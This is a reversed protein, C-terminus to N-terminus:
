LAQIGGGYFHPNTVNIIQPATQLFAIERIHGYYSEILSKEEHDPVPINKRDSTKLIGDSPGRNDPSEHPFLKFEFLQVFNYSDYKGFYDSEEPIVVKIFQVEPATDPLDVTQKWAKMNGIPTLEHQGDEANLNVALPTWKQKLKSGYIKYHRPYALDRWYFVARGPRILEGLNVVFYQTTDAPDGSNALGESYSYNNDNIRGNESTNPTDTQRLGYVPEDFTGEVPRDFAFNAERTRFSKLPSRRTRGETDKLTLRYKISSDPYFRTFKVLHRRSPNRLESTLNLPTDTGASVTITTPVNTFIKLHGGYMTRKELSTKRLRPPPVGNTRASAVQSKIRHGSQDWAYVRFRYLTGETLDNFSVSQRNNSSSRLSQESLNDRGFRIKGRAPKNTTWTVELSTESRSTIAIEKFELTEDSQGPVLFDPTTDAAVITGPALILGVFYVIIVFELSFNRPIM